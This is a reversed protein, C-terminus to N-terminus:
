LEQYGMYKPNMSIWLDLVEFLGDYGEGRLVIKERTKIKSTHRRSRTVGETKIISTCSQSGM